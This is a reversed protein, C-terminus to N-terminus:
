NVSHELLKTIRGSDLDLRYFAQGNGAPVRRAALLLQGGGPFWMPAWDMNLDTSFRKEIGDELSKVIVATDGLGPGVNTPRRALYAVRKGDPSLASKVNDTTYTSGLSVPVSRTGGASEFEVRYVNQDGTPQLYYLAGSRVFGSLTINGVD